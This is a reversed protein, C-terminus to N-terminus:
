KKQFCTLYKDRLDDCAPPPKGVPINGSGCSASENNDVRCRYYQDATTQCNGDFGPVVLECLQNCKGEAESPCDNAVKVDHACLVRCSKMAASESGGGEESGSCSWFLGVCGLLFLRKM